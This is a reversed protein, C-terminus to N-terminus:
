VRVAGHSPCTIECKLTENAQERTYLAEAKFTQKLFNFSLHQYFTGSM